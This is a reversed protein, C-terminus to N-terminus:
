QKETYRTGIKPFVSIISSDIKRKLTRVSIHKELAIDSIKENLVYVRFIIEQMEKSLQNFENSLEEFYAEYKEIEKILENQKDYLAIRRRHLRKDDPTTEIGDFNFEMAGTGGIEYNIDEIQQNLTIIMRNWFSCSRM